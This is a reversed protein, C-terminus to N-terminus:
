PQEDKSSCETFPRMLFLELSHDEPHDVELSIKDRKIYCCLVSLLMWWLDASYNACIPSKILWLNLIAGFQTGTIAAPTM